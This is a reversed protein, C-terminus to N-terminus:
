EEPSALPDGGPGGEATVSLRALKNMRDANVRAKVYRPSLHM